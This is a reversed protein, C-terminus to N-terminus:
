GRNFVASLESNRVGNFAPKEKTAPAESAKAGNVVSAAAKRRGIEHFYNASPTRCVDYGRRTSHFSM